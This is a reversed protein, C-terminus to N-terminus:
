VTEKPLSFYHNGIFVLFSQRKLWEFHTEKDVNQAEWKKMEYNSIRLCIKTDLNEVSKFVIADLYCGSSIGFVYRYWESPDSYSFHPLIKVRVM